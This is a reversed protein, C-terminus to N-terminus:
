RRLLRVALGVSRRVAQWPLRHNRAWLSAALGWGLARAPWADLRIEREPTRVAIVRGVVAEAAIPADLQPLNDGGTLLV